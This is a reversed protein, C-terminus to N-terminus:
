KRSERSLGALCGLVYEIISLTIIVKKEDDDLNNAIRALRDAFRRGERFASDLLKIYTQDHKLDNNWTKIILDITRVLETTLGKGHDNSLISGVLEQLISLPSVERKSEM